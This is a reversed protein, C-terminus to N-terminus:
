DKVIHCHQARSKAVASLRARQGNQGRRWHVIGDALSRALHQQYTPSTLHALDQRNSLFGPEFLIGPMHTEMLVYFLAQRVGRDRLALTRAWVGNTVAHEVACALEISEGYNATTALDTMILDLTGHTQTRMAPRRGPDHTSRGNELDALRRSAENTAANFVYIESGSSRSEDCSNAHISVFVASQAHAATLNASRTRQDLATFHDGTRTLVAPIGRSKLILQTQRAIALTVDKEFIRKGGANAIAGTDDGGHGPDLIVTFPTAGANAAATALFTLAATLFMRGPM